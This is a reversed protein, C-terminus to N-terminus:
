GPLIGPFGVSQKFVRPVIRTALLATRSFPSRFPLPLFFIPTTANADCRRSRRMAGRPFMSEVRNPKEFGAGLALRREGRCRRHSHCDYRSELNTDRNQMVTSGPETGHAVDFHCVGRWDASCVTDFREHRALKESIKSRPPKRTGDRRRPRFIRREDGRRRQFSERRVARTVHVM